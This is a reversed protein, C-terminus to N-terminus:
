KVLEEIIKESKNWAEKRELSGYDKIVGGIKVIEKEFNFPKRLTSEVLSYAIDEGWVLLIVAIAAL